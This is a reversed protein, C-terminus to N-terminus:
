TTWGALRLMAITFHANCLAFQHGQAAKLVDAELEQGALLGIVRYPWDM